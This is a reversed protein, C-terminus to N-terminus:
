ECIKQARMQNRKNIKAINYERKDERDKCLQLLNLYDQESFPALHAAECVLEVVRTIRNNNHIIALAHQAAFSKPYDTKKNTYNLKIRNVAENVSTRITTILSKGKLDM